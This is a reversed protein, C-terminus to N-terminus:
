RKHSGSLRGAESDAFQRTLTDEYCHTQPSPVQDYTHIVLGDGAGLLGRFEELCKFLPAVNGDLHSFASADSEAAPHNMQLDFSSPLTQDRGFAAEVAM